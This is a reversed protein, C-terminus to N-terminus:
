HRIIIEVRRNKDRNEETDNAALPNAEGWGHVTLVDNSFGMGSLVGSVLYARQYSLQENILPTGSNDTYGNIFVQIDKEDKWHQLAQGIIIKDSDALTTSNKKFYVSLVQTDIVPKQYDSPLLSINYVMPEALYQSDCSLTDYRSQYTVRDTFLAYKKGVPLSFTFSGDGRNSTYRYLEQGSIADSLILSSYNLREHSISDYVYGKIFTVPSPRLAEPWNMEYIDFDGADNNRNSTFYAHKGDATLNLSIEDYQTNIPYGLNEPANWTTDDARKAMYLDSGGMGVHGDSAFYLTANDAFLYPAVENGPTNIEPGLNRPMQWLGNEFRTMWIDLGGYGGPRNSVFYLERNDSSLCPMGEYAPTNITAGFSEPTSWNSDATYAMYLDCGGKDWGNPSRNDCRMFFLYHRDASIMQAAEQSPTNLPYGLPKGSFWGGCSDPDSRYFDEDIGNTRRTYYLTKGDATIYPYMEAVGTNIRCGMNFITDPWPHLLANRMFAAQKKLSEWEDAKKAAANANLISLAESERGAFLLARAEPFAFKQAGKDCSKAARAFVDAAKDYQHSLFYWEGLTSYAADYAPYSRIASEMRMCAKETDKKAKYKLAADYDQQAHAPVQAKAELSMFLLGCFLLRIIRM